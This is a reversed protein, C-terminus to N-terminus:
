SIQYALVEVCKLETGGETRAARNQRREADCATEARSCQSKGTIDANDRQRVVKQISGVKEM